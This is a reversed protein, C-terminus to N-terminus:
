PSCIWSNTIGNISLVLCKHLTLHNFLERSSRLAASGIKLSDQMLSYTMRGDQRLMKEVAAVTEPLVATPSRGPHTEDKLSEGRVLNLLGDFFQQRQLPM